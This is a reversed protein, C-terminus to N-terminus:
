ICSYYEDGMYEVCFEDLCISSFTECMRRAYVLTATLRFTGWTEASTTLIRRRTTSSLLLQATDLGRPIDRTGSPSTLRSM